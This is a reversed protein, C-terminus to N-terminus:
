KNIEFMMKAIDADNVNPSVYYLRIMDAVDRPVDYKRMVVDTERLGEWFEAFLRPMIIKMDDFRVLNIVNVNRRILRMIHMYAAETKPVLNLHYVGDRLIKCKLVHAIDASNTDFNIKILDDLDYFPDSDAGISLIDCFTEHMLKNIEAVGITHYMNRPLYLLLRHDRPYNELILQAINYEPLSMQPAWLYNINNNIDKATTVAICMLYRPYKQIILRAIDNLHKCPKPCYTFVNTLRIVVSVYLECTSYSMIRDMLELPCKEPMMDMVFNMGAYFQANSSMLLLPFLEILDAWYLEIIARSFLNIDYALNLFRDIIEARTMRRWQTILAGLTFEDRFEYYITSISRDVPNIFGRLIRAFLEDATLYQRMMTHYKGYELLTQAFDRNLPAYKLIYDMDATPRSCEGHYKLIHMFQTASIQLTNTIDAYLSTFTYVDREARYLMRIKTNTCHPCWSDINKDYYNRMFHCSILGRDSLVNLMFSLEACTMNPIIADDM